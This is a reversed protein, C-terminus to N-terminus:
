ERIKEKQKESLSNITLGGKHGVWTKGCISQLFGHQRMRFAFEKAEGGAFPFEKFLGIKQFLERHSLVCYLSLFQDEKLILNECKEEKKTGLINGGPNDSRPSVMKVGKDKMLQIYNGLESLWQGELIADSHTLVVWSTNRIPNRLVSNLAAGLGIASDHRMCRINALKSENIQTIFESNESGDDILTIFFPTSVSQYISEILATVHAHQGYFPIIIEVESNFSAM